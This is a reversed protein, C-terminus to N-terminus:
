VIVGTPFHNAPGARLIEDVAHLRVFGLKRRTRARRRSRTGASSIPMWFGNKKEVGGGLVGPVPRAGGNGRM